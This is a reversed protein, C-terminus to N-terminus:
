ENELFQNIALVSDSLQKYMPHGTQKARELNNLIQEKQSKVQILAQRKNKKGNVAEGQGHWADLLKKPNEYNDDTEKVKEEIKELSSNGISEEDIAVKPLSDPDKILGDIASFCANMVDPNNPEGTKFFTHDGNTTMVIKASGGSSNIKEMASLSQGAPVNKDKIPHFFLCPVDKPMQELRYFPSIQANLNKNMVPNNLFNMKGASDSKNGAHRRAMENQIETEFTPGGLRDRMEFIRTHASDLNPSVFVIQKIFNKDEPSINKDTLFSALQFGGWSHAVVCIEKEKFDPHQRLHEIVSQLDRVYNPPDALSDSTDLLGTNSSGAIEPAVLTYDQGLSWSTVNEFTNDYSLGPGGHLFLVANKNKKTEETSFIQLSVHNKLEIHDIKREAKSVSSSAESVTAQGRPSVVPDSSPLRQLEGILPGSGLVQSRKEQKSLLSKEDPVQMTPSKDKPAQAKDTADNQTIGSKDPPLSITENVPRMIM